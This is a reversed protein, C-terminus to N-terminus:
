LSVVVTAQYCQPNRDCDEGNPYRAEYEPTVTDSFIETGDRTVVITVSAPNGSLSILLETAFVQGLSCEQMCAAGSCESSLDFDCSEDLGDANSLALTYAGAAFIEPPEIMLNLSDSCGLLTCAEGGGVDDPDGDGCAAVSLLLASLLTLAPAMKM